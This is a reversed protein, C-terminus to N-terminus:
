YKGYPGFGVKKFITEKYNPAKIEPYPM